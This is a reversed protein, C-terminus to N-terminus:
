LLSIPDLEFQWHQPPLYQLVELLQARKPAKLILQWRYTDGQREYFAPAPGLIEVDKPLQERLTAALKQSNAVASRETKYVCVLKLLFRYPPFHTHKRQALTREYFTQYDQSLGAQIIPHTPQYSQVIVNTPHTSRGVRGIAQALLQFTREAASYDPLSLGADAQIIAVTRLHPLDLGKAIVQTGIIIDIDGDYLEKYRQEVTDAAASDGDFRAIVKDPYLKKLESEILKTGIGKHIIDTHHCEPCSTPVKATYNCIHCRLLHQDAHLTLPLYCRPCGAQWGCNNCLSISASGRRNHFAMVQKQSALDQEIQKLLDDSLFRHRSFLPRKTMDVIRVEPKVTNVIAPKTLEILSGPKKEALYYDQMSPTASGLVVHAGTQEALIHAARLASYRPSQEQKYTPEHAEDIVVLGLSPVPMFLASRPGVVVLPEKSHLAAQWQLHREAETQRSHTVIVHPFDHSFDAVLQSTLAIEPVLIVVSRKKEITQRAVELYVATKGSGTVGHLLTTGTAGATIKQVAAQQQNNLLFNTRKRVPASVEITRARRSKELGRPLLTQLVSALPTAYYSAMWLALDVYAAPIPRSEICETIPKVPYTPRTTTEHIILGNMLLKGVNIRVLQGRDLPTESSYTFATKDARVIRLPAVEYYHM